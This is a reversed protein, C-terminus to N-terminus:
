FYNRCQKGSPPGSDRSSARNYVGSDCSVNLSWNDAEAQHREDEELARSDEDLAVRVKNVEQEIEDLTSLRRQLTIGCNEYDLFTAEGYSRAEAQLDEPFGDPHKAGFYAGFPPSELTPLDLFPEADAGLPDRHTAGSEAPQSPFSGRIPGFAQFGAQGSEM